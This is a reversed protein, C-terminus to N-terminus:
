PLCPISPKKRQFRTHMPKEFNAKSCHTCEHLKRATPKGHHNGRGPPTSELSHSLPHMQHPSDQGPFAGHGTQVVMSCVQSRPSIPASM